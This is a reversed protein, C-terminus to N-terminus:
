ARCNLLLSPWAPYFPFVWSYAAQLFCMKFVFVFIHWFYFISSLPLRFLALPGTDTNTPKRAWTILTLTDCYRLHDHWAHTVTESVYAGLLLRSPIFRFSIFCRLSGSLSGTVTRLTWRGWHRACHGTVASPHKYLVGGLFLQVRESQTSAFVSYEGSYVKNPAM